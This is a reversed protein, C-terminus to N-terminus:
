RAVSAYGVNIMAELAAQFPIGRREALDRIAEEMEHGINVTINNTVEIPPAKQGMYSRHLLERFKRRVDELTESAATMQAPLATVVRDIAASMEDWANLLEESIAPETM